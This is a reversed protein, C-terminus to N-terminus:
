FTVGDGCLNEPGNAYHALAFGRLSPADVCDAKYTWGWSVAAVPVDLLPDPTIVTRVRVSPDCSPDTPIADSAAKLASVVDPCGNADNCKYVFVIAGHELDHVFYRPDVPKAYTQYAAWYPYHPGSSPPNSSYTVPTGIAVHNAPLAPPTDIIVRCPAPVVIPQALHGADFTATSADVSSASSGVSSCSVLGAVVGLASVVFALGRDRRM